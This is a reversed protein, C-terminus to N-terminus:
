HEKNKGRRSPKGQGLLVDVTAYVILAALITTKFEIITELVPEAGPNIVFINQLEPLIFLFAMVAFAASSIIRIIKGNCAPASFMLVIAPLLILSVAVVSALPPQTLEVGQSELFAQVADTWYSSLLAGAALALGLLGFRRKMIFPLAFLIAFSTGLVFFTVM